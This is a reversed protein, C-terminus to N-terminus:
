YKRGIKIKPPILGALNKRRNEEENEKDKM